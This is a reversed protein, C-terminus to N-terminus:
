KKIALVKHNKAFDKKYTIMSPVSTPLYCRFLGNWNKPVNINNIANPGGNFNLTITGDKNPKVEHSNLHFPDTVVWGKEDYITLSWYGAKKYQLDPKKFTVSSPEGNKAAEDGPLVVFYYAHKAPLGAWGALNVMQYQPTLTDKLNDIFGKEIVVENPARKILEARLTNFSALDYKVEPVYPKDSGAEVKVADQRNRMEEMGKEDESRPQTRMFLYVHSGYTADSPKIELTQGPYCVGITILNEDQVQVIQYLDYPPITIKLGGSIDFVGYSYILDFNSRIVTQNKLDIGNREHRFHNTGNVIQEAALYKATEARVINNMTAKEGGTETFAPNDATADGNKLVGTKTKKTTDAAITTSSDTSAQNTPQSNCSVLEIAVIAFSFIFNYKM